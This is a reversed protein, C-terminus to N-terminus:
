DTVEGILSDADAQGYGRDLITRRESRRVWQEEIRACESPYSTYLTLAADYPNNSTWSDFEFTRHEPSEVTVRYIVGIIPMQDIPTTVTLESM